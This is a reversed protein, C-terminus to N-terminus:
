ASKTTGRLAGPARRVSSTASCRSTAGMVRRRRGWRQILPVSPLWTGGNRESAEAAHSTWIGVLPTRGGDAAATLLTHGATGVHIVDVIRCTSNTAGGPGGRLRRIRQPMWSTLGMQGM